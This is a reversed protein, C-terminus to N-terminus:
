NLGLDAATPGATSHTRVVDNIQKVNVTSNVGGHMEDVDMSMHDNKASPKAVTSVQDASAAKDIDGFPGADGEYKRVAANFRAESQSKYSM